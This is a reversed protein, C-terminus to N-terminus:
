CLCHHRLDAGVVAIFCQLTGAPPKGVSLVPRASFHRHQLLVPHLNCPAVVLLVRAVADGIVVDFIQYPAGKSLDSTNPSTQGKARKQRQNAHLNAYLLCFLLLCACPTFSNSSDSPLTMVTGHTCRSHSRAVSTRRYWHAQLVSDGARFGSQGESAALITFTAVHLLGRMRLPRM